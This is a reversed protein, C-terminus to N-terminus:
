AHTPRERHVSCVCGVAATPEGEGLCGRLLTAFLSFATSHWKGSASLLVMSPVRDVSYHVIQAPLCFVSSSRLTDCGRHMCGAGSTANMHCCASAHVNLGCRPRGSSSSTLARVACMSGAPTRPRLRCDIAVAASARPCFNIKSRETM